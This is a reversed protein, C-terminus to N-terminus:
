KYKAYSLRPAKCTQDTYLRADASAASLLQALDAVQQQLEEVQAERQEFRKQWHAVQSKLTEIETM